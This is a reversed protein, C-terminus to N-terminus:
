LSKVKRMVVKPQEVLLGRLRAASCGAKCHVYPLGNRQLGVRLVLNTPERCTPCHSPGRGRRASEHCECSVDACTRQELIQRADPM